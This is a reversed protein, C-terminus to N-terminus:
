IGLAEAARAHHGDSRALARVLVIREFQETMESLTGEFHAPDATVRPRGGAAYEDPLHELLLNEVPCVM